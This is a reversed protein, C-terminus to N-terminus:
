RAARGMDIKYRRQHTEVLDSQVTLDFPHDAGTDLGDMYVQDIWVIPIQSKWGGQYGIDFLMEVEGDLRM